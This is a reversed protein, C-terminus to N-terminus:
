SHPTLSTDLVIEGTAMDFRVVSAGAHKTQNYDEINVSFHVDSLRKETHIRHTEFLKSLTSDKRYFMIYVVCAISLGTHMDYCCCMLFAISLLLKPISSWIIFSWSYLFQEHALSISEDLVANLDRWLQEFKSMEAPLAPTLNKVNIEYQQHM